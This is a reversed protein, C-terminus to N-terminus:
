ISQVQGFRLASSIEGATERVAAVVEDRSAVSATKALYPVTLAAVARDLDIIPASIDIIGDVWRSKSSEYGAAAIKRTAAIFAAEDDLAGAKRIISLWWEKEEPPQFAFLVRGSAALPVNQSYGVRVSFSMPNPSEVRAVVVIKERSAVAIHTSQAIRKSLRRIAPIAFEFLQSAPRSESGLQLLKRSLAFGEGGFPREVYGRGELVQVMRYLEAKSRKLQTAIQTSTMPETSGALLELIDLGKELAPARYREADSAQKRDIPRRGMM